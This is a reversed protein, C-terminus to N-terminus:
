GKGDCQRQVQPFRPRDRDKEGVVVLVVTLESSIGQPVGNNWSIGIVTFSLIYVLLSPLRTALGHISATVSTKLDFAMLTIIVAM